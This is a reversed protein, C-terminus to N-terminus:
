ILGLWWEKGEMKSLKIQVEVEDLDCRLIFLVLRHEIVQIVRVQM